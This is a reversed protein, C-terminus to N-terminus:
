RGGLLKTYNSPSNMNALGALADKTNLQPGTYSMRPNMGLLPSSDPRSLAPNSLALVSPNVSPVAATPTDTMHVPSTLNVATAWDGQRQSPTVSTNGGATQVPTVPTNSIPPISSTGPTLSPQNRDPERYFAHAKLYNVLGQMAPKVNPSNGGLIYSPASATTSVSGRPQGFIDNFGGQPAAQPPQPLPNGFIDFNPM